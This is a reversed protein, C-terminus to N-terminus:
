SQWCIFRVFALIKGVKERKKGGVNRKCAWRATALLICVSSNLRGAMDPQSANCPTAAKTAPKLAKDPRGASDPRVAHATKIAKDPNAANDQGSLLTLSRIVVQCSPLQLSSLM